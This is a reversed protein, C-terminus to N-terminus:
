HPVHGALSPRLWTTHAFTLGEFVVHRVPRDLSGAVRVLTEVAPAVVDVAALDEGARPWYYVNGETLDAFWEGPEDLFTRSNALFFPANKGDTGPMPPPPWPHEFEVRSEPEHFTVTADDTGREHHKLRLVAIEWAQLLVMEVGHLDAPVPVDNPIGAVRRPRDWRTLRAMGDGNPTRARVAKRNGVWMQRFELTRGNFLPLRAVHVGAPWGPGAPRWGGIRVGGTFVPSEGAAAALRLPRESTGGDEPRVFIPEVLAYEGGRFLISIGNAAEASGVRRWERAVRLAMAPTALPRERTGPNTDSGQPSVWIDAAGADPGLCALLLTVAFTCSFSRM